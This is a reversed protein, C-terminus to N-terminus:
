VVVVVVVVVVVAVFYKSNKLDFFIFRHIAEVQLDTTSILM